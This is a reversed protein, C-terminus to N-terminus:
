QPTRIDRLATSLARGAMRSPSCDAGLVAVKAHAVACVSPLEGFQVGDPIEVAVNCDPCNFRILRNM